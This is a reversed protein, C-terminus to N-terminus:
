CLFPVFKKKGMTYQPYTPHEKTLAEEEAAALANLAIALVCCTVLRVCSYTLLSYGTCLM